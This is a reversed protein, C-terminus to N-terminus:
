TTKTKAKAKQNEYTEAESEVFAIYDGSRIIEAYREATVDIISDAEHLKGTHIDRFPILVKAKM